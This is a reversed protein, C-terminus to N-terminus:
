SASSTSSGARGFLSLVTRGFFESRPLDFHLFGRSKMKFDIAEDLRRALPNKVGEGLLRQELGPMARAAHSDGLGADLRPDAAGIADDHRASVSRSVSDPTDILRDLARVKDSVGPSRLCPRCGVYRRQDLHPQGGLVPSGGEVHPVGAKRIRLRTIRMAAAPLRDEIAEAIKDIGRATRARDSHEAVRAAGIAPRHADPKRLLAHFIPELGVSGMGGLLEGNMGEAPNGSQAVALDLDVFRPGNKAIDVLSEVPRRQNRGSAEEGPRLALLPDAHDIGVAIVGHDPAVYHLM